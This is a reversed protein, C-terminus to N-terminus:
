INVVNVIHTSAQQKSSLQTSANIAKETAQTELDAYAYEARDGSRDITLNAARM